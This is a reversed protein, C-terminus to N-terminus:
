IEKLNGFVMCNRDSDWSSDIEGSSAMKCLQIGLVWDNVEKFIKHLIMSNILYKGNKEISYQRIISRIEKPKIFIKFESLPINMNKAVDRGIHRSMRKIDKIEVLPENHM